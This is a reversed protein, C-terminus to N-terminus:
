LSMVPILLPLMFATFAGTMGMALGGFAGAMLGYEFAYATGMGHASVGLTFGKVAEDTVNLIRYIPPALVCGIAGTILVLGSALSPYGGLKEAIGIAIASTVSKPAISLLTELSADLAQAVLIASAAATVAGAMCALLLPLLMKKVRELHDFLPVALAVTAPGLLFHIFQAGEFYTEYPTGTLLLFLIILTLSVLVPHLLPTGGVRRNLWSAVIFTVITVILWLLPKASFFTWFAM